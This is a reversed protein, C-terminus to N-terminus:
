EIWGVEAAKKLARHQLVKVNGETIGLEAATELITMGRLFRLELVGRYNEPLGGLIREVMGTHRTGDEVPVGFEEGAALQELLADSKYRDRWYDNVQNRAISWLWARFSPGKFWSLNKFVKFFVDSTINEADERNGVRRYAFEYVKQLFRDYLEEFAPRDGDLVFEVLKEDDMVAVARKM